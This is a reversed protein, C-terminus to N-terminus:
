LECGTCSNQVSDLVSIDHYWYEYGRGSCSDARYLSGYDLGCPIIYQMNEIFEQTEIASRKYNIRRLFNDCDLQVRSKLASTLPNTNASCCRLTSCILQCAQETAEYDSMTRIDHSCILMIVASIEKNGCSGIRIVDERFSVVDELPRLITSTIGKRSCEQCFQLLVDHILLVTHCLDALQTWELLLLLYYATTLRVSLHYRRDIVFQVLRQAQHDDESSTELLCLGFENFWWSIHKTQRYTKRHPFHCHMLRTFISDPGNGLIDSCFSLFMEVPASVRKLLKGVTRGPGLADEISDDDADSDAYEYEINNITIRGGSGLWKFASGRLEVVSNDSSAM